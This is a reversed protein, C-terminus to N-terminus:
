NVRKEWPVRRFTLMGIRSIRVVALDRGDKERSRQVLAACAKTESIDNALGYRVLQLLENFRLNNADPYKDLPIGTTAGFLENDSNAMQRLAEYQFRTLQIM